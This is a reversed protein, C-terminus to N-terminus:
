FLTSMMQQMLNLTNHSLFNVEKWALGYALSCYPVTGDGSRNLRAISQYTDKGKSLILFFSFFVLFFFFSFRLDLGVLYM